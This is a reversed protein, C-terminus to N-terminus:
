SANAHIYAVTAHPISARVPTRLVTSGPDIKKSGIDQDTDIVDCDSASGLAKPWYCQEVWTPLPDSVALYGDSPAVVDEANDDYM